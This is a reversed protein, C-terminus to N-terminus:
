YPFLMSCAHKGTAQIMPLGYNDPIDALLDSSILKKCLLDAFIAHDLPAMNIAAAVKKLNDDIKIRMDHGPIRGTPKSDPHLYLWKNKIELVKIIIQQLKMSFVLFAM